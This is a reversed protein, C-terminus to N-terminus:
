NGEEGAAAPASTGVISEYFQVDFGPWCNERQVQECQAPIDRAIRTAWAPVSEGPRRDLALWRIVAGMDTRAMFGDGRQAQWHEELACVNWGRLHTAHYPPVAEVWLGSAGSMRCLVDLTLLVAWEDSGEEILVSADVAITCGADLAPKSNERIADLWNDAKGPVKLAKLRDSGLGGYYDIIPHGADTIPKLTPAHTDIIKRYDRDRAQRLTQIMDFEFIPMGERNRTMGWGFPRHLMTIPCGKARGANIKPLLYPAGARVYEDPLGYQQNDDYAVSVINATRAWDIPKPAAATM